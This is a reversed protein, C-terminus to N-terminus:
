ARGTSHSRTAKPRRAIRCPDSRGRRASGDADRGDRVSHRCGRGRHARPRELWASVRGSALARGGVYVGVVPLIFWMGILGVYVVYRRHGPAVSLQDLRAVFATFTVGLLLATAVVLMVAVWRPTLIEFDVNDPSLPDIVGITGLLVVGLAVGATGATSPLWRRLVVFTVALLTASVFGAFQIFAISGDATIQGVTEGAETRLGRARDGSTAALTRMVLRGVLGACLLGSIAGATTVVGAVRLADRAAARRGTRSAPHPPNPTPLSRWRWALTGVILAASVGLLVVVLNARDNM